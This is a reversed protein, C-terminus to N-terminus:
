GLWPERSAATAFDQDLETLYKRGEATDSMADPLLRGRMPNTTRKTGIVMKWRALWYRLKM